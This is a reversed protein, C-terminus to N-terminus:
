VFRGRTKGKAECGGGRVAGGKAYGKAEREAERRRMIADFQKDQKAKEAPTPPKARTFQTQTMDGRPEPKPPKDRLGAREERAINTVRPDILSRPDIKIENSDAPTDM